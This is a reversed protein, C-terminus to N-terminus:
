RGGERWALEASRFERRLRDMAKGVGTERYSDNMHADSRKGTLLESGVITILAFGNTM